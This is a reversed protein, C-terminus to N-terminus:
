ARETIYVSCEDELIAVLQPRLASLPIERWDTQASFDAAYWTRWLGQSDYEVKLILDEAEYIYWDSM